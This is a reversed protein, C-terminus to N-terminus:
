VAAVSQETGSSRAAERQYMADLYTLLDQPWLVRAAAANGLGIETQAPFLGRLLGAGAHM